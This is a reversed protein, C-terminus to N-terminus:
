TGFGNHSNTTKVILGSGFSDQSVLLTVSAAKLLFIFIKGLWLGLVKKAWWPANGSTQLIESSVFDLNGERRTNNTNIQLTDLLSQQCLTTM